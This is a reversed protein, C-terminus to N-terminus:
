TSFNIISSSLTLGSLEDFDADTSGSNFTQISGTYYNDSRVTMSLGISEDITENLNFTHLSSTNYYKHYTTGLLGGPSLLRSDEVNGLEQNYILDVSESTFSYTHSRILYNPVDLNSIASEYTITELRSFLIYFTLSDTVVFPVFKGNDKVDTFPAFRGGRKVTLARPM